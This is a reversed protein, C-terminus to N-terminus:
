SCGLIVVKNGFGIRSVQVLLHDAAEGWIAGRGAVEHCINWTYIM